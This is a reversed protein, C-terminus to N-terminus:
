LIAAVLSCLPQLSCPSIDPQHRDIVSTVVFCQLVVFSKPFVAFLSSCSAFRIGLELVFLGNFVFNLVDAYYRLPNYSGDENPDLSSAFQMM